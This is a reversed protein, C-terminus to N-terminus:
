KNRDVVSYALDLLLQRTEEKTVVPAVHVEKTVGNLEQWVRVIVDGHCAAPKCWCVIITNETIRALEKMVVPNGAKIQGRLWEEYKVIAEERTATRFQAVSSELHSYPNGLPSPRGVYMDLSSPTHGRKNVVKM